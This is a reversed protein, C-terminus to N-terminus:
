NRLHQESTSIRKGAGAAQVYRDGRAMNNM